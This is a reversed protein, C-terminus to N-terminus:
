SLILKCYYILQQLGKMFDHQQIVIIKKFLNSLKDTVINKCSQYVVSQQYLSTTRLTM